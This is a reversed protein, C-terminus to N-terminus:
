MMELFHGGLWSTMVKFVRTKQSVNKEIRQGGCETKLFIMKAPKVVVILRQRHEGSLATSDYRDSLFVTLPESGVSELVDQEGDVTHKKNISQCLLQVLSGGLQSLSFVSSFRCMLVVSASLLGPNLLRPKNFTDNSSTVSSATWVDRM